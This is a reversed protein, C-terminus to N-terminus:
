NSEKPLHKHHAKNLLVVGPAKLHGCGDMIDIIVAVTYLYVPFNYCKNLIVENMHTTILLELCKCVCVCVCVCVCTYVHVCM